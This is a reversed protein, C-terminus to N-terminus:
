GQGPRANNSSALGSFAHSLAGALQLSIICARVVARARNSKGDGTSIYLWQNITEEPLLLM